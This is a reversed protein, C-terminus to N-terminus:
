QVGDSDVSGDRLSLLREARGMVYQDHTVVMLTRGREHVVDLLDMIMGTSESDLSGTPEDCIVIPTDRALARALATRQREGGSMERPLAHMRHALGVEGLAIEPDVNIRASLALGLQVNEYATLHEVLHFSQFVFSFTQARLRTRGADSLGATEVGRVMVGGSDPTMLLSIINLLTSKGSGSPGAVALYEGEHVTLSVGRVAETGDDFTRRVRDIAVAPPRLQTEARPM